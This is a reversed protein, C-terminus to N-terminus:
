DGPALDLMYADLLLTTGRHRHEAIRAALGRAAPLLRMLDEGAESRGLLDGALDLLDRHEARLQEARASLWAADELIQALLGGPAEAEAVHQELRAQTRLLATHLRSADPNARSSLHDVEQDLDAAAALLAERRDRYAAAQADSVARRDHGVGSAM